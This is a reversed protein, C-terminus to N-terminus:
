KLSRLSSIFLWRRRPKFYTKLFHKRKKKKQKKGKLEKHTNKYKAQYNIKRMKGYM